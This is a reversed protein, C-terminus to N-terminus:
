SKPPLILLFPLFIFIFYNLDCGIIPLKHHHYTVCSFVLFRIFKVSSIIPFIQNVFHHRISSINIFYQLITLKLRQETGKLYSVIRDSYQETSFTMQIGTLVLEKGARWAKKGGFNVLYNSFNRKEVTGREKTSRVMVQCGVEIEVKHAETM